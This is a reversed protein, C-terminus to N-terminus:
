SRLNKKKVSPDFVTKEIPSSHTLGTLQLTKRKRSKKKRHISEKNVLTVTGRTTM